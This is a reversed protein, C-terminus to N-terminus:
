LLLGHKRHPHCEQWAYEERTKEKWQFGHRLEQLPNGIDDWQAVVQDDDAGQQDLSHACSWDPALDQGLAANALGVGTGGPKDYFYTVTNGSIDRVQKLGWIFEPGSGDTSTTLIASKDRGGEPTGGYYRRTGNKSTVEWWYNGPATGHRVIREFSGEVRRQFVKESQRQEKTSQVATPSLQAGDLLYTESEATPNYRPVGWRTDLTVSGVPLDWGLGVWGNGGTSSYSLSLDPQM